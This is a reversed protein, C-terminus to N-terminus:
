FHIISWDLGNLGRAGIRTINRKYQPLNNSLVACNSGSIRLFVLAENRAQNCRM